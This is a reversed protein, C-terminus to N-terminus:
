ARAAAGEAARKDLTRRLHELRRQFTDKLSVAILRLPDPEPWEGKRPPVPAQLTQLMNRMAIEAFCVGDVLEYSDLRGVEVRQLVAILTSFDAESAHRKSQIARVAETDTDMRAIALMAAQILQYISELFQTHADFAEHAAQKRQWELLKRGEKAQHQAVAVAVLIAVISGLAQVWAPAASELFHAFWTWGGAAVLGIAALLTVVLLSGAPAAWAPGEDENMGM